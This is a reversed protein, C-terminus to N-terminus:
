KSVDSGKFIFPAFFSSPVQMKNTHEMIRLRQAEVQKRKNCTLSMNSPALTDCGWQSLQLYLLSVSRKSREIRAYRYEERYLM